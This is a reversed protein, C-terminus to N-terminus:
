CSTNMFHKTQIQLSDVVSSSNTSAKEFAPATVSNRKKGNTSM